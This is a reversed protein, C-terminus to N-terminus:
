PDSGERPFAAALDRRQHLIRAIEIADDSIRYFMVHPHILVSRLGTVLEDRSRGMMPFQALRQAAREIDFLLRDAVDMSGVRTFYQWIDLLDTRASPAWVIRRPDVM